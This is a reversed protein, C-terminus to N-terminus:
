HSLSDTYPYSSVDIGDGGYEWGGDMYMTYPGLLQLQEWLLHLQTLIADETQQIEIKSYEAPRISHYTGQITRCWRQRGFGKRDGMLLRHTLQENDSYTTEAWEESRSDIRPAEWEVQRGVARTGHPAVGQKM